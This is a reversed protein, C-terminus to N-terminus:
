PYDLCVLRGKYYGFNQSKFDGKHLDRFIEIEEATLDELKPECRSQIQLLGFWSCFLSPAVKDLFEPMNKFM